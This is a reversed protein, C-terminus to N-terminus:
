PAGLLSAKLDADVPDNGLWIKLLANFFDDGAIDTGKQVGDVLIRTGAGPVHDLRLVTGKHAEGFSLMMQRLADMRSQFRAVDAVSNNKQFGSVMAEAFQEGSLNRMLVIQM